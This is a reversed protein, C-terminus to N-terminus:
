FEGLPQSYVRVGHVEVRETGSYTATVRWTTGQTGDPLRWLERQRTGTCARRARVVGDILLELTVTGGKADVDAKWYDFRKLAWVNGGARDALEVTLTVDQDADTMGTELSHVEGFATGGLLLDNYEEAYLATMRHSYFYWRQTERSYVALMTDGDTTPYSLYYRQKWATLAMEDARNWDIPAYDNVTENNWLPEIAATLLTDAQLFNTLFLGDRAVFLAGADTALVAQPAPTGRASLAEVYTFGSTANGFVRYKTQRTLVGLLGVLRVASQLPDSPDGVELYQTAPIAEPRFHKSYWLYHPNDPDRLLFLHGQFETVWGCAPPVDNDTEVETGLATDAASLTATTTGQEIEQDYLWTSGTDVTRYLRKHTVQTDSSDALGTVGIVTNTVGLTNSVDSPNSEHAIADGVKRVYTYKLSYNGILSGAGGAALTAASTPADLGWTTLTTGDDKVMGGTDALFVWPSTDNLPRYAAMEALSGSLGTRLSTFNRYWTTGAIQYRTSNLRALRRVAGDLQTSSLLARGLRLRLVGPRSHLDADIARACDSDELSLRDLRLNVGRFSRLQEPQHPKQPFASPM